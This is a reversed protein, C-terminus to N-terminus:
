SVPLHRIRIQSERVSVMAGSELDETCQWIVGQLLESFPQARLGGIRIRIVSPKQAQLLALHTHFDADLTVIVRNEELARGLIEEDNAESMGIEGTHVADFGVSRLLDAASRPAGQDLLLKM